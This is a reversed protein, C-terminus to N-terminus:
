PLVAPSATAVFATSRLGCGPTTIAITGVIKKTSTVAGKIAITVKINRDTGGGRFFLNVTHTYTTAFRYHGKRVKLAVGPFGVLAFPPTAGTHSISPCHLIVASTPYQSALIDDNGKAIRTATTAVFTGNDTSVKWSYAHHAWLKKPHGSAIATGGVAAVVLFAALTAKTTRWM